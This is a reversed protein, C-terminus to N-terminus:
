FLAVSVRPSIAAPEYVGQKMITHLIQAGLAGVVVRVEDAHTCRLQMCQQCAGQRQGSEARPPRVAPVAPHGNRLLLPPDISSSRFSGLSISALTRSSLTVISQPRHSLPGRAASQWRRRCSLLLM